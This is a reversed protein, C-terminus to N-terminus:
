GSSRASPSNASVSRNNHRVDCTAQHMNFASVPCLSSSQSRASFIIVL